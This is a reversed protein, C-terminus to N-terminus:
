QRVHKIASANPAFRYVYDLPNRPLPEGPKAVVHVWSHNDLILSLGDKGTVTEIVRGSKILPQVQRWSAFTFQPAPPQAAVPAM